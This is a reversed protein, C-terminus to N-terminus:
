RGCRRPAAPGPSSADVGEGALDAVALHVAAAGAVHLAADGSRHDRDLRDELGADRKGPRDLDGARHVLFGAAEGPDGVQGLPAEEGAGPDVVDDDGLREVDVPDADAVAADPPGLDLGLAPDGVAGHGEQAVAGHAVHAGHELAELGLQQRRQRALPGFM